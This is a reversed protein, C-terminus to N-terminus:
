IIIIIIKSIGSPRHYYCLMIKRCIQGKFRTIFELLWCQDHYSPMWSNYRSSMHVIFRGPMLAVDMALYVWVFLGIEVPNPYFILFRRIKGIHNKNLIWLRTLMRETNLQITIISRVRVQSSDVDDYYEDKRDLFNPELLFPPVEQLSFLIIKSKALILTRM